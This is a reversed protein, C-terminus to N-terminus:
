LTGGVPSSGAVGMNFTHYEIWNSNRLSTNKDGESKKDTEM